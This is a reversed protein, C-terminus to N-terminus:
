KSVRSFIHNAEELKEKSGVDCWIGPVRWTYFATHHYMWEVLRGPEELNNQEAVYRKIFNLSSEPYYYLAVGITLGKPKVPKEEFFTIKGSDDLEISNYKGCDGLNDITYVAVVPAKKQRAFTVFGELSESFLNDAAIVVVDDEINERTLVLHLNGIAGISGDHENSGNNIININAHGNRAPYGDIWNRFGPYFKDNTVIYISELGHIAALSDLVREIMAKGAIPLLAKPTQKTLPLLRTAYGGALIIAKLLDSGPYLLQSQKQSFVGLHVPLYASIALSSSSRLSM